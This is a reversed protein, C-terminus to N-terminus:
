KQYFYTYIQRVRDHDTDKYNQPYHLNLLEATKIYSQKKSYGIRRIEDVITVIAENWLNRASQKAPKIKKRVMDRLHKPPISKRIAELTATKSLDDSDEFGLSNKLKEYCVEYLVLDLYSKITNEHKKIIEKLESQMEAIALNIRVGQLCDPFVPTLRGTLLEFANNITKERKFYKGSLDLTMDFTGTKNRWRFPVYALARAITAINAGENALNVMLLADKKNPQHNLEWQYIAKLDTSAKDIRINKLRTYPKKRFIDKSDNIKKKKM